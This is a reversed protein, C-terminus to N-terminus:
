LPLRLCATTVLLNHSYSISMAPLLGFLKYIDNTSMTGTDSGGVRAPLFWTHRWTRTDMWRTWSQGTKLLWSIWLSPCDSGCVHCIENQQHCSSLAVFWVTFCSLSVHPQCHLWPSEPDVELAISPMSIASALCVYNVMDWAPGPLSVLVPRPLLNTSPQSFAALLSLCFHYAPDFNVLYPTM